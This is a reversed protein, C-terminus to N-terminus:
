NGIENLSTESEIRRIILTELAKSMTPLLSIPRYSKTNAKDKKGPKPIIVLSSIKWCDPFIANEMCRNM